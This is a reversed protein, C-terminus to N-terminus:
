KFLYDFIIKICEDINQKHTNVIIEPNTPKEYPITIGTFYEIKGERLKKYLGKPDRKECIDLPCNVFIEIFNDGILDRAFEREKKFQSISSVLVYLGADYFLKTIEAIRRLNEKRDKLSYGIDQNLHKRINDGDLLYTLIQKKHLITELKAALTSKGSGSLGTFWLVKNNYGLLKNRMERNVISNNPLPYKVM